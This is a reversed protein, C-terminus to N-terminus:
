VAVKDVTIVGNDITFIIKYVTGTTTDAVIMKDGYYYVTSLGKVNTGQYYYDFWVFDGNSLSIHTFSLGDGAVTAGSVDLKTSSGDDNLKYINDLESIAKDVTIGSSYVGSRRVVDEILFTGNPYAMANGIVSIPTEIPTALQYYIDTGALDAQAESLTAYTGLDYVLTAYYLTDSLYYGVDNYTGTLAQTVTLEIKDSIYAYGDIVAQNTTIKAGELLAIRVLQTNTQNSIAVIDSAQLTYKKVRQVYYAQGQRFEITDKTSNPLSYGVEGSDLYMSSSRFPEYTTAVTGQELQLTALSDSAKNLSIVIYKANAPTTFNANAIGSIFVENVDLFIKNRNSLVSWIYTTSPKIVIKGLADYNSDNTWVGTTISYYGGSRYNAIDKDFLNKGVSTVRKDMDVAMISNPLTGTQVWLDMQAKIQADSMLDFTTSFLPSYQKNAILTSINFLHLYDSTLTPNTGVQSIYRILYTTATAVDFVHSQIGNTTTLLQTLAYTFPTNEMRVHLAFDNALPQTHKSVIYYKEASLSKIQGFYQSAGTTVYNAIGNTVTLTGGTTTWGTTGDSFDGNTVLQESDLLLGEIKTTVTTEAVDKGMHLIGIGDDDISAIDSDQKRTIAEISDIRQEHDILDKEHAIDKAQLNTINTEADDIDLAIKLEEQTINDALDVGAITQTKDVKLDLSDKVLKESPYATNTPTVQFETVKNTKDEKTALETVLDVGEPYNEFIALIEAITNVVSDGDSDFLAMLTDLDTKDQASMLGSLSQTAEGIFSKLEALTLLSSTTDDYYTITFLNSGSRTISKIMNATELALIDAETEDINTEVNDIRVGLANDQDDVYTKDAKDTELRAVEDDLAKKSAHTIKEINGLGDDLSIEDFAQTGDLIDTTLQELDDVNGDIEDIADKITTAVLGSITNDYGLDQTGAIVNSMFNNLITIALANDTAVGNVQAIYTLILRIYEATISVTSTPRPLNGKQIQM